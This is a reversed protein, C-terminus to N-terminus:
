FGAQVHLPIGRPQQEVKVYVRCNGSLAKLRDTLVKEDDVVRDLDEVHAEVGHRLLEQQILSAVSTKGTNPAGRVTILLEKM